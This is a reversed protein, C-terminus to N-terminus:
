KILLFKRLKKMLAARHQSVMQPSIGMRKAIQGRSFGKKRMRWAALQKESAIEVIIEEIM